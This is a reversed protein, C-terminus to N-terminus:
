CVCILGGYVVHWVAYQGLRVSLAAVFGGTLFFYAQALNGAFTLAFQSYVLDFRGAELAVETQSLPEILSSLLALVVFVTLRYRDPLGLRLAIWLVAPIALLRYIVELVVAGGSYLLISAPFPANFRDRGMDNLIFAIGGTTLEIAIAVVGLAAGLALPYVFRVRNGVREDWGAPFGARSALHVGVGGAVAVIAVMLPDFLARYPHNELGGGVFTIFLGTSVLLGVCALWPLFIRYQSAVNGTMPPPGLASAAARITM